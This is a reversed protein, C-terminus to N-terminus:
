TDSVSIDLSRAQKIVSCATYYLDQILALYKFHCGLAALGLLNYPDERTKSDQKPAKLLIRWTNLCCAFTRRYLIAFKAQKEVVQAWPFINAM